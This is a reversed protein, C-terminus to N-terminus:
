SVHFNFRVSPAISPWTLRYSLALYLEFPILTCYPDLWARRKCCIPRFSHSLIRYRISRTLRIGPLVVSFAVMEIHLEFWVQHYVGMWSQMFNMILEALLSNVSMERAGYGKISMLALLATYGLTIVSNYLLDSMLLYAGADYITILIWFYPANKNVNTFCGKSIHDNSTPVQADCISM